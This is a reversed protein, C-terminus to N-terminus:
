LVGAQKKRKRVQWGQQLWPPREQSKIDPALRRAIGLATDVYGPTGYEKQPVILKVVKLGDHELVEPKNVLKDLGEITGSLLNGQGVQEVRKRRARPKRSNGLIESERAM